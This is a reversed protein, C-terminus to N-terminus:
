GDGGSLMTMPEPDDDPEDNDAAGGVSRVQGSMIGSIGEFGGHIHVGGSDITFRRIQDDHASGRMKLVMIGGKAMGNSRTIWYNMFDPCTSTFSM